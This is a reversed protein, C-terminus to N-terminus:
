NFFAPPQIENSSIVTELYLRIINFMITSFSKRHSNKGPQEVEIPM